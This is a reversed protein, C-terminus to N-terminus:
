GLNDPVYLVWARWCRSCPQLCGFRALAHKYNYTEHSTVQALLVRASNRAPSPCVPAAQDGLGASSGRFARDARGAATRPVRAPAPAQQPLPLWSPTDGNEEGELETGERKEFNGWTKNKGRSTMCISNAGWLPSLTSLLPSYTVWLPLLSAEPPM